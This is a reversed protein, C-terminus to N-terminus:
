GGSEGLPPQKKIIVTIEAGESAGHEVAQSPKGVARDLIANCAAVRATENAKENNAIAALTAIAGPVHSM